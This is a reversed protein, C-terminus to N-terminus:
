CSWRTADSKQPVCRLLAPRLCSPLLCAEPTSRPPRTPVVYGSPIWLSVVWGIPEPQAILLTFALLMFMTACVDPSARHTDCDGPSGQLSCLGLGVILLGVACLAAYSGKRSQRILQSVRHVANVSDGLTTRLGVDHGPANCSCHRTGQRSALHCEEDFLHSAEGRGTLRRSFRAREGEHADECLRTHSNACRVRYDQESPSLGNRRVLTASVIALSYM